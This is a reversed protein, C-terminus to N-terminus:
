THALSFFFEIRKCPLWINDAKIAPVQVHVTELARAESIGNPVIYDVGKVTVVRPSSVATKM